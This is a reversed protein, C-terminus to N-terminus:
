RVALMAYGQIAKGRNAWIADHEALKLADDLHIITDPRVVGDTLSYYARNQSGILFTSILHPTPSPSQSPVVVRILHRDIRDRLFRSVSAFFGALRM